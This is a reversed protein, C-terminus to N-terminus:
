RWVHRRTQRQWFWVIQGALLIGYAGFIIRLIARQENMGPLTAWGFWIFAVSLLWYEVAHLLREMGTGHQLLALLGRYFTLGALAAYLAVLSGTM